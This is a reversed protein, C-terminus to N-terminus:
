TSACASSLLYPVKLLLRFRMDGQGVEDLAGAMRHQNQQYARLSVSDVQPSSHVCILAKFAASYQVDVGHNAPHATTTTSFCVFRDSKAGIM